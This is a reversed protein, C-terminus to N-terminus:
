RIIMVTSQPTGTAVPYAGQAAYINYVGTPVREGSADSCDWLASGMVPGLQAVVAGEHNTVTIYTDAMLGAIKVMGTFDPEVPNPFVYVNNFDLSAAESDPVYEAFGNDTYIYVRDHKTDCEVSYVIDSPIDSNRTTFHEYVETGDPSVYFLGNNTAIWKRGSREFGVDHVEFGDCLYGLDDSSKAVTVRPRVAKPNVAFVEDPHFFFLGGTHGVWIYGDPAEEIHLLYTWKVQKNDQDTFHSISLFKYDNVTPDENFNDWCLIRGRFDSGLYDCDSYIKVNNLRSIVFRSRQMNGTNLAKLGTPQFWDTKSVSAQAVKAKPLVAAPCNENGYSSVVWMNGYKDFAPHAKFTGMLSNNRTYTYKLVNNTVKHLGNEWSARVYTTSDLPNFVFEYGSGNASYATVNSWTSGNYANIVNAPTETIVNKGNRATSCVYLLDMASNYKLWYPQNTTLTNLKYYASSNKVHLGYADSIWVTGDGTPYSSAFGVATSAKTAVKGTADITYYFSQGAFNAIFGTSTKQVSTPKNSVLTTKTLTGGLFDYNYLASPGLVFASHDDIPFIKAANMTSVPNTYRAFEGIPNSSGKPGYYCNTNSLIIMNDGLVAVSNLKIEDGLVDDSIVRMDSENLAVYRFGATIYAVGNAFTIDNIKKASYDALVSSSLTYNYVHSLANKIAPVNTVKGNGDIVDINANIYAVFLLNREYDFYIQDIHSDSLVNQQNLATTVQTSKDYRFLVNSNLYYVQSGTDFINQINSTVYSNHMKWTGANGSAAVIVLLTLLILHKKLM